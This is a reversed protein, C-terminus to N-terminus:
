GASRLKSLFSEVDIPSPVESEAFEEKALVGHGHAVEYERLRVDLTAAYFYRLGRHMPDPETDIRHLLADRSIQAIHPDTALIVLAELNSAADRARQADLPQEGMLQPLRAHLYEMAALEGKEDRTLTTLALLAPIHIVSAKVAAAYHKRATKADERARAIEGLVFYAEAVNMTDGLHEYDAKAELALAEARDLDREELAIVALMFDVAPHDFGGDRAQLLFPRAASGSFKQMQVGAWLYSLDPTLHGEAALTALDSELTQRAMEAVDPNAACRQAFATVRARAIRAQTVLAPIGSQLAPDLNTLTAEVSVDGPEIRADESYDSRRETSSPQEEDSLRWAIGRVCVTFHLAALDARAVSIWHRGAGDSAAALRRDASKAKGQRLLDSAEAIAKAAPPPAHNEAVERLPILDRWANWDGMATAQGAGGPPVSSKCAPVAISLAASLAFGVLRVTSGLM